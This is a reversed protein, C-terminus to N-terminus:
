FRHGRGPGKKWMAAKRKEASNIFVSVKSTQTGTGSTTAIAFIPLTKSTPAQKYYLYDWASGPHTAAVAITKATDIASGGGMGLCAEVGERKAM